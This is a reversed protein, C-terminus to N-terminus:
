RAKTGGFIDNHCFSRVASNLAGIKHTLVDKTPSLSYNKKFINKLTNWQKMQQNAGATLYWTEILYMYM